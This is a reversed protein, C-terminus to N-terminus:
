MRSHVSRPAAVATTLSPDVENPRRRQYAYKADWAAITADYIAVNVLAVHRAANLGKLPGNIIRNVAIQVWRSSPAGADWYVIRDHWQDRQAALKRLEVIEAPSAQDDPPPQPRLERPSAVVWTKWSGAMPGVPDRAPIPANQQAHAPAISSALLLAILTITRM